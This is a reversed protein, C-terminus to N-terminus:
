IAATLCQLLRDLRWNTRSPFCSFDTVRGSFVVGRFLSALPAANVRRTVISPTYNNQMRSTQEPNVTLVSLNNEVTRFILKKQATLLLM